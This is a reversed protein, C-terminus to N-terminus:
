DGGAPYASIEVAKVSAWVQSGPALRLQSAAQPTVDASLPLPPGLEVRLTDGHHHLGDIRTPWVNRPSGEPPYRHLAVASPRFAVFVRGHNADGVTLKFGNDLVVTRGDADGRYLNLGVLRAVYDAQPRATITAADGEQVVRGDEIVVLRDALILADLPDHTVLLTGGDHTSLHRNLEARTDARTGADLAALPEDLLLLPPRGVLARALAVRQAQGGSLQGPRYRALHAVGVRRLWEGAQRRAERRGAGRCRPGFAVNEVASLHPFLLHDQFVVGVRRREPPVWVGTAPEDLPRGALRVHGASLRLLGALARLATTKGAGNPGVVAVVEGPAVALRVDLRFGGRAVDLHADPAPQGPGPPHGSM